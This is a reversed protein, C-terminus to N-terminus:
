QQAASQKGIKVGKITGDPAQQIVATLTIGSQMLEKIDQKSAPASNKDPVFHAGSHTGSIWDSIGLKKDAYSGVAYGAAGAGLVGAGVTAGTGLAAGVVGGVIRKAVFGGAGKIVAGAVQNAAIGGVTGAVVGTVPHDAIWKNIGSTQKAVEAGAAMENAQRKQETQLQKAEETARVQAAKVKTADEVSPAKAAERAAKADFEMIASGEVDGYTMRAVQLARKKGFKKILAQQM